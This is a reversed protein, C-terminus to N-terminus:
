CQTCDSNLLGIPWKILQQQCCVYCYGNVVQAKLVACMGVSTSIQLVLSAM